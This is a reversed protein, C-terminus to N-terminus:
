NFILIVCEQECKLLRKQIITQQYECKLIFLNFIQFFTKTRRTKPKDLNRMGAFVIYSLLCSLTGCSKGVRAVRARNGVM